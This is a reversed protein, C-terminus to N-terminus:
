ASGTADTGLHTRADDLLQGVNKRPRGRRRAPHVPQESFKAPKSRAPRGAGNAASEARRMAAEGLPTDALMGLSRRYADLLAYQDRRVEPDLKREKVIQRLIPPQFGAQRAEEYVAQITDNLGKREGHLNEIRTVFRELAATNIAGAFKDPIESSLTKAM